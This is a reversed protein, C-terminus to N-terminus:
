CVHADQKGIENSFSPSIRTSDLVSIGFMESQLKLLGDKRVVGAKISIPRGAELATATWWVTATRSV